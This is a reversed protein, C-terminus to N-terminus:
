QKKRFPGQQNDVMVAYRTSPEVCIRDGPFADRFVYGSICTDAGYPGGNPNRRSAARQNDQLVALFTDNTVCVHDGEVALRWRYPEICDNQASAAPKGGDWISPFNKIAIVLGSLAVVVATLTTIKGALTSLLGGQKNAGSM